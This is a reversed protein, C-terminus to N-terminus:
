RHHGGNPGIQESELVVVKGELRSVRAGLEHVEQHVAMVENALMAYITETTGKIGALHNNLDQFAEGLGGRTEGNSTPHGMVMKYMDSLLKGQDDIKIGVKKVGDKLTEIEKEIASIAPPRSTTRERLTVNEDADSKEADTPQQESM